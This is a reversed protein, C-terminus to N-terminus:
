VTDIAGLGGAAIQEKKKKKKGKSFRTNAGKNCLFPVTGLAGGVLNCKAKQFGFDLSIDVTM